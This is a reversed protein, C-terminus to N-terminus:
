QITELSHHLLIRVAFSTQGDSEDLVINADCDHGIKQRAFVDKRHVVVFRVTLPLMSYTMFFAQVKGNTSKAV